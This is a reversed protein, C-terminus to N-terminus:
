ELRREGAALQAADPRRGDGLVALVDLAVLGQLPAELLDDDRFGVDLRRHRDQAAELGLVLEVVADADEVRGEDGGRAEAVAVDGAAEHRVLGDVDDVLRRGLEVVLDRAARRREVGRVALDHLELHLLHAQRRRGDRRRVGDLVRRLADRLDVRAERLELVELPPEHGRPLELLRGDAADAVHLLLDGVLELLRLLELLAHLELLAGLDAVRGDRLELALERGDLVRQVLVLPGHDRAVRHRGVVDGGDDGRPRAHGRRAEHRRLPLLKQVELGRERRADDALGVGAREDGVGHAPGLRPEAVRRLGDGREREEPRRADALRLERLRERRLDEVVGVGEHAEVHGLEGLLM